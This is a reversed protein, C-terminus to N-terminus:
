PKDQMATAAGEIPNVLNGPVARQLGGVIVREDPKL